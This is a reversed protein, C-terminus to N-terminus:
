YSVSSASVPKVMGVKPMAMPMLDPAVWENRARDSFLITDSYYEKFLRGNQIQPNAMYLEYFSKYKNTTLLETLINAWFRTMTYNWLHNHGVSEKYAKWHTCLWGSPNVTGSYKYTNLSYTVIRLRGYHDWYDLPLTKQEFQRIFEQLPVTLSKIQNPQSQISSISSSSSVSPKVAPAKQLAQKMMNHIWEHAVKSNANDSTYDIFFVRCNQSNLQNFSALSQKQKDFQQFEEDLQCTKYAQDITHGFSQSKCKSYTELVILMPKTPNNRKVDQTRQLITDLDRSKTDVIVIIGDMQQVYGALKPDTNMLSYLKFDFLAPTGYDLRSVAQYMCMTSVGYARNKDNDLHQQFPSSRQENDQLVIAKM